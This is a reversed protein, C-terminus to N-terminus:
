LLLFGLPHALDQGARQHRQCVVECGHPLRCLTCPLWLRFCPYEATPRQRVKPAFLYAGHHAPGPGLPPDLLALRSQLAVHATVLALSAMTLRFVTGQHLTATGWWCLSPPKLGRRHPRGKPRGRQGRMDGAHKMTTLIRMHIPLGTGTNTHMRRALLPFSRWLVLISAMSMIPMTTDMGGTKPM